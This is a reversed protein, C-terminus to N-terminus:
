RVVEVQLKYNVMKNNRATNRMQYIQILYNGSEPLKFKASTGTTTGIVLTKAKSPEDGPAYINIQALDYDSTM